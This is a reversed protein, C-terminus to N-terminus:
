YAARLRPRADADGRRGEAGLPAVLREFARLIEEDEADGVLEFLRRGDLLGVRAHMLECLRDADIGADAAAELLRRVVPLPRCDPGFQWSPFVYEADGAPRVALLEGARRQAHLRAPQVGLRSALWSTSLARM